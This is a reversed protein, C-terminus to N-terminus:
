TVDPETKVFLNTEWDLIRKDEVFDKKIAYISPKRKDYIEYVIKEIKEHKIVDISDFYVNKKRRMRAKTRKKEKKMPKKKREILVPQFSGLMTLDLEILDDVTKYTDRKVDNLHLISSNSGFLVNKSLIFDKENKTTKDTKNYHM